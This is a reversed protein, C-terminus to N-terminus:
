QAGEEEDVRWWFSVSASPSLSRVYHWFKPPIYLMEGEDLICDWYPLDSFLPFRLADPSDLDVQM